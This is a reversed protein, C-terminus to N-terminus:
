IAAAGSTASSSDHNNRAGLGTIPALQPAHTSTSNSTTGTGVANTNSKSASSDVGAVHSENLRSNRGETVAKGHNVPSLIDFAPSKWGKTGNTSAALDSVQGEKEVISHPASWDILRSDRKASIQFQGPATSIKHNTLSPM